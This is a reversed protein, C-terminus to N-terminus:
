LYEEPAGYLSRRPTVYGVTGGMGWSISGLLRGKEDVEHITGSASYVVLTNGNDLRKADGMAMSSLNGSSYEWILEAQMTAEDISYEIARSGTNFGGGDEGLNNFLLISDELVQHQHQAVWAVGDFDSDEGGFVWILESSTRDIKIISNFDLVSLYYADEREVYNIANSHCWEDDSVAHHSFYDRLNFVERQGGDPTMEMIRDCIGPGSDDYEIYAIIDDFPLVTVDHHRTSLSYSSEEEGDMSVKVLTGSNPGPVNGNAILMYKGDYTMRARVWDTERVSIPSYWWVYDGDKDLIFAYDKAASFTSMLKFEDGMEDPSDIDVIKSPLGTPMAGTKLSFDNSAYGAGGSNAVIRFHYGSSPKLGLLLTRFGPEGLDVPARTGYDTDPGFEIYASDVTDLGVSWEIIGVTSIMSSLSITVEFATKGEVVAPTTDTGDNDSDSDGVSDSDNTNEVVDGSDEGCAALFLFICFVGGHMMQLVAFDYRIM